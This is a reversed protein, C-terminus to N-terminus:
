VATGYKDKTFTLPQKCFVCSYQKVVSPQNFQSYIRECTSCTANWFGNIPRNNYELPIAGILFCMEKWEDGHGKEPGVLAHAIEHLLTDNISEWDAHTSYIRSVEIVKERKDKRCFALLLRRNNFRFVWGAQLLGHQAMLELALNEVENLKM